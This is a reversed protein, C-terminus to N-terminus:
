SLCSVAHQMAAGYRSISVIQMRIIVYRREVYLIDPFVGIETGFIRQLWLL